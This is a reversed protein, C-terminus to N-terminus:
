QVDDQRSVWSMGESGERRMVEESVSGSVVM